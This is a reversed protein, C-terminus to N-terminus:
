GLLFWVCTRQMSLHIRWWQVVLSTRWWCKHLAWTKWDGSLASCPHPCNWDRRLGKSFVGNSLWFAIKCLLCSLLILVSFKGTVWEQIKCLFIQSLSTLCGVWPSTSTKRADFDYGKHLFRYFNKYEESIPVLFFVNNLLVATHLSEVM